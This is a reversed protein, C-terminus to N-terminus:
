VKGVECWLDSRREGLANHGEGKAGDRKGRGQVGVCVCVLGCVSYVSKRRSLCVRTFVSACVYVSLGPTVADGSCVESERREEQRGRRWMCWEECIAVM